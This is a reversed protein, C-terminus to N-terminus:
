FAFGVRLYNEPVAVPGSSTGARAAGIAAALHVGGRFMWQWGIMIQPGLERPYASSAGLMGIGATSGVVAVGLQGMNAYRRIGIGPEVFPGQLARDLYIPVGLSASWLYPSHQGDARIAVHDSVVVSASLAYSSALWRIPDSAIAFRREISDDASALTPALVAAILLVCCLHRM